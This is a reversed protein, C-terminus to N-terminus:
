KLKWGQFFITLSQDTNKQIILSTTYIMTGNDCKVQGETGNIPYKTDTLHGECTIKTMKPIISNLETISNSHNQISQSQISNLVLAFGVMVSVICLTLLIGMMSQHNM